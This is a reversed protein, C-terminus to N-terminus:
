YMSMTWATPWSSRSIAYFIAKLSRMSNWFNHESMAQCTTQRMSSPNPINVWMTWMTPWTLFHTYYGKKCTLDFSKHMSKLSMPLFNLFDLFTCIRSIMSLIKTGDMIMQPTWRLELFKRLLFQADYGRSNHTIVYIKYAFPRSQRLYEIFKGEPDKAGFSTPVRVV